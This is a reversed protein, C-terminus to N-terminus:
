DVILPEKKGVIQEMQYWNQAIEKTLFSIVELDSDIKREYIRVEKGNTVMYLPASLGYAYSRAQEQVASTLLQNPEKAEIVLFPKGMKENYVVWDAIGSARQRGVQVEVSVRMKLDNIGYGLFRMLLYVFKVEVELESNYNADAIELFWENRVALFADTSVKDIQSKLAQQEAKMKNRETLLRWLLGGALFFAPSSFCCAILFVSSPEM